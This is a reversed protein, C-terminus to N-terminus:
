SSSLTSIVPQACPARWIGQISFCPCFAGRYLLRPGEQVFVLSVVVDCFVLWLGSRRMFHNPLGGASTAYCRLRPIKWSKLDSQNFNQFVAHDTTKFSLDNQRSILRAGPCIRPLSPTIITFKRDSTHRNKAYMINPIETRTAPGPDSVAVGKKALSHHSLRPILPHHVHSVPGSNKM